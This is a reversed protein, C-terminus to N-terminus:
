VERVKIGHVWLMLKRKIVFDKTRVGKSDEVVENGNKGRYVFDAIYDAERELLHGQIKGGRKGVRDPERQIPILIYKVQRRFDSILGARLMLNLEKWRRAERKSDFLIGDPSLTKKARYKTTM